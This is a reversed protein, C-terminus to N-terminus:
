RTRSVPFIQHCPALDLFWRTLQATNSTIWSGPTAIWLDFNLRVAFTDLESDFLFAFHGSSMEAAAAWGQGWGQSRFKVSFHHEEYRTNIGPEWTAATKTHQSSEPSTQTLIGRSASSMAPSLVLLLLAHHAEGQLLSRSLLLVLFSSPPPSPSFLLSVRSNM